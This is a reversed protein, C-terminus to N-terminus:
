QGNIKSFHVLGALLATWNTPWNLANHDKRPLHKRPGALRSRDIVNQPEEVLRSRIMQWLVKAIGDDDQSEMGDSEMVVAASQVGKYYNKNRTGVDKHTILVKAWKQRFTPKQKAWDGKMGMGIPYGIRLGWMGMWM